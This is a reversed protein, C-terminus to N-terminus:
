LLYDNFKVHAKPCFWGFNYRINGRTNCNLYDKVNSMRFNLNNRSGKFRISYSRSGMNIKDFDDKGIVAIEFSNPDSLLDNESKLPYIYNPLSMFGSIEFINKYLTIHDGIKLKNARAYAPDILIEGKDPLKGETVAPINVKTNYTLIRLIKGSSVEYDVSTSEELVMNFKSELSKVDLIKKETVFSADELNYNEEFSSTIKNMNSKLQNFMTFLLCSIIILALSGFYQSKNEMITREIKKNIVM